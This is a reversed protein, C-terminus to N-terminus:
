NKLIKTLIGNKLMELNLLFSANDFYERLPRLATKWGNGDTVWIFHIDQQNWFNSMRTYETATSKLKSGGNGYFNVEVFYLQNKHKIVFDIIRSSKDTVIEIGWNSKIKKANAQTLYDAGIEECNKKIYIEVLKEMLAGGRNKRGNSDLGVEVGMVYDVLNKIKKSIFLHKLGSSNLFEVLFEIEEDTFNDKKFNYNQYLFNDADHLIDISNARLAILIPFSKVVNPYKSILKAAEIDFNKKGVLYNLLNLEIEISELNNFVKQWNVFYDWTTIKNKFTSIILEFLADENKLNYIEKLLKKKM